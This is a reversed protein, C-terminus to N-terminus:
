TSRSRASSPRSAPASVFVSWTKETIDQVSGPDLALDLRVRSLQWRAGRALEGAHCADDSQLPGPYNFGNIQQAM